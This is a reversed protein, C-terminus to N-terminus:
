DEKSRRKERTKEMNELSADFGVASGYINAGHFNAMNPSFSYAPWNSSGPFRTQHNEM